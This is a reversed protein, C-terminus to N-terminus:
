LYIYSTNSWQAKPFGAQIARSKQTNHINFDLSFHTFNIEAPLMCFSSKCYSKLGFVPCSHRVFAINIHSKQTASHLESGFPSGIFIANLAIAWCHGKVCNQAESYNTALLTLSHFQFFFVHEEIFAKQFNCFRNCPKSYFSLFICPLQSSKCSGGNKSAGSLVGVSDAGWLPCFRSM